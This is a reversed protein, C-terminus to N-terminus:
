NESAYVKAYDVRRQTGCERCLLGVILVANVVVLVAIVIDKSTFSLAGGFDYAGVAMGQETIGPTARASSFTVVMEKWVEVEALRKELLELTQDVADAASVIEDVREDNASIDVKVAALDSEVSQLTAEVAALDAANEEANATITEEAADFRETMATQASQLSEIDLANAAFEDSCSTLYADIPLSACNADSSPDSAAITTAIADDKQCVYGKERDCFYDWWKGDGINICQQDLSPAGHSETDGAWNVYDVVTGDTWSWDRPTQNPSTQDSFGIWCYVGSSGFQLCAAMVNADEDDSHISALDGGMSVCYARADVFTLPSSSDAFYCLGSEEVCLEQYGDVDDATGLIFVFVLAYLSLSLISM